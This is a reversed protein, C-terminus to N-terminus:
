SANMQEGSPAILFYFVLATPWLQLMLRSLSTQLHWQLDIPTIVYVMYDAAMMGLLVLAPMAWATKSMRPPATIRSVILYLIMFPMPYLWWSGFSRIERFVYKWITFHQAGNQMRSLWLGLTAENVIESPPAHLVKFLLLAMLGPLVGVGFQVIERMGDKYNRRILMLLIRACVVVLPFLIGENKTCAAFGAFLGALLPLHGSHKGCDSICFMSVTATIFCALEIDAYQSVGHRLFFPTSLLICGLLFAHTRGSLLRIACFTVLFTSFTFLGGIVESITTSEVGAYQWSRAIISPLLLPYDPHTDGLYSDVIRAVPSSDSRAIFRAKLNWMATADWGGQTSSDFIFVFAGAVILATLVFGFGTIKTELTGGAPASIAYPQEITRTGKRIWLIASVGVLVTESFVLSITRSDWLSLTAFYVTGGIGIGAMWSLGLRFTRPVDPWLRTVILWGAVMPALCSLGFLVASM